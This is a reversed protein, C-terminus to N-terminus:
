IRCLLWNLIDIKDIPGDEVILVTDGVSSTSLDGGGCCTPWFRFADTAPMPVPASVPGPGTLVFRTALARNKEFRLAAFAQWHQRARLTLHLTVSCPAGHM